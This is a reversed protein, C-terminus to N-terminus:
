ANRKRGPGYKGWFYSDLSPPRLLRTDPISVPGATKNGAQIDLQPMSCYMQSTEGPDVNVNAWCELDGDLQEAFVHRGMGHEEPSQELWPTRPTESRVTLTESGCAMDNGPFNSEADQGAGDSIRLYVGIGCLM